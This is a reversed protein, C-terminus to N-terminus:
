KCAQYAASDANDLKANLPDLDEKPANALQALVLEDYASTMDRFTNALDTPTAPNEALAKTLYNSNAVTALRINVAIIFKLTPDDSTQSGAGKLANYIKDYASCMAKKADAVQQDSYQPTTDSPAAPAEHASPRFWAGIAVAVAVFGVVLSIIVPARSQKPAVPPWVPPPGAPPGPPPWAGGPTVGYPSDTM